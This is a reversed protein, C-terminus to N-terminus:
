THLSYASVCFRGRCERAVAVQYLSAMNEDGVGVIVRFDLGDEKEEGRNM